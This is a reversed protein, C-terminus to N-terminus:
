EFATTWACYIDSQRLISYGLKQNPPMILM